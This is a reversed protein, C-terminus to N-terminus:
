EGRMGIREDDRAPGGDEQPALVAEGPKRVQRPRAAPSPTRAGKGARDVVVAFERDQVGSRSKVQSPREDPLGGTPRFADDLHHQDCPAGVLESHVSKDGLGVGFQFAPVFRRSLPEYALEGCLEPAALAMGTSHGSGPRAASCGSPTRWSLRWGDPVIRGAITPALLVVRGRPRTVRSIEALVTSLWATMDGQVGHQRGFPLNSVVADVSATPLSLRRADGLQVEARPVNLGSIRVADPDIDIGRVEHWGMSLAEALITGSGCCPDLLVGNRQGALSVMTAAVTPRLAGQREEARGAHQRMAAGSLRLGAILQGPRYESVWVEIQAPDAVKWRPRVLAIRQSLERRLDTRLFRNEQLVRAIVRYAMTGALPRVQSSWVSLAREAREPRWIRQAIWDARDGDAREARDVEVFLDEVVRLSWIEDWSARNMEFLILDSRGDFGVGTVTVGDLRELEQAVLDALGPVATSFM